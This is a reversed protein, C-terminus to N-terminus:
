AEKASTLMPWLRGSIAFNLGRRVGSLRERLWIEVM